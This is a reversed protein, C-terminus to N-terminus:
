TSSNCFLGAGLIMKLKNVFTLNSNPVGYFEPVSGSSGGFYKRSRDATSWKIYLKYETLSGSHKVKYLKYETLSGSHKVKYLKYETLSRNSSCYTRTRSHSTMLFFPLFFEFFNLFYAKIWRANKYIFLSGWWQRFYEVCRYSKMKCIRIRLNVTKWIQTIDYEEDNNYIWFCQIQIWIRFNKGLNPDSGKGM